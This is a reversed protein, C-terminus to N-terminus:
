GRSGRTWTAAVRLGPRLGARSVDGCPSCGGTRDDFDVISGRQDLAIRCCADLASRLRQRARQVRSKMGSVSLGLQQAAATQTLGDFEVLQLAQRDPADLTGIIPALCTSLERLAAGDADAEPSVTALPAVDIASGSTVERAHSPTRYYDAIVRRTTQYVWAHLRSSDRLAPLGRHVQLFVQQVIDDADAPQRVRRGVFGRINTQLESWVDETRLSVDRM